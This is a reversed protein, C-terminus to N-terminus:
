RKNCPSKSQSPPFLKTKLPLQLSQPAIAGWTLTDFFGSKLVFV